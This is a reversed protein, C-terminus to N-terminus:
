IQNYIKKSIAQIESWLTSIKWRNLQHTTEEIKAGEM